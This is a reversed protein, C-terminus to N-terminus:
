EKNNQQLNKNNNPIKIKKNRKKGSPNHTFQFFSFVKNAEEVM